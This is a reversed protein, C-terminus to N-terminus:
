IYPSCRMVLTAMPGDTIRKHMIYGRARASFGLIMKVMNFIMKTYKGRLFLVVKAQSLNYVKVARIDAMYM